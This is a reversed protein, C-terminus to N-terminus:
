AVDKPGPGPLLDVGFRSPIAIWGMLIEDGSQPCILRASAIQDDHVEGDVGALAPYMPNGWMPEFGINKQSVQQTVFDVSAAPEFQTGPPEIDAHLGPPEGDELQRADGGSLRNPGKAANSAFQLQRSNTM